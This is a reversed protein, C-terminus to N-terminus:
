VGGAAAQPESESLASNAPIAVPLWGPIVRVGITERLAHNTVKVDIPLPRQPCSGCAAQAPEPAAAESSKRGRVTQRTVTNVRNNFVVLARQPQVRGTTQHADPLSFERGPRHIGLALDVPLKVVTIVSHAHASRGSPVKSLGCFRLIATEPERDHVTDGDDIRPVNRFIAQWWRNPDVVNRGVTPHKRELRM